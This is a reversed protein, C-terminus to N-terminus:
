ELNRIKDACELILDIMKGANYEALEYRAETMVICTAAGSKVRQVMGAAEWIDILSRMKPRSIGVSSALASTNLQNGTRLADALLAGVRREINADYDGEVREIRYFKQNYEIFIDLQKKSYNAKKNLDTAGYHQVM